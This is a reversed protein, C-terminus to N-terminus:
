RSTDSIYRCITEAGVANGLDNVTSTANSYSHGIYGTVSTSTTYSVATTLTENLAVLKGGVVTNAPLIMYEFAGCYVTNSTPRRTDYFALTAAIVAIIALAGLIPAISRKKPKPKKRMYEKVAV